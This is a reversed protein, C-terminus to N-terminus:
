GLLRGAWHLCLGYREEVGPQRVAQGERRPGARHPWGSTLPTPVASGPSSIPPYTPSGKSLVM